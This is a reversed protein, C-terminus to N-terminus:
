EGPFETRMPGISGEPLSLDPSLDKAEQLRDTPVHVFCFYAFPGPKRPTKEPDFDPQLMSQFYDKDEPDVLEIKSFPTLYGELLNKSALRNLIDAFHQAVAPVSTRRPVQVCLFLTEIQGSAQRTEDRYQTINKRQREPAFNARAEPSLLPDLVEQLNGIKILGEVISEPKANYGGAELAKELNELNEKTNM